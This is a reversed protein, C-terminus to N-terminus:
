CVYAGHKETNKAGNMQSGRAIFEDMCERMRDVIVSPNKWSM